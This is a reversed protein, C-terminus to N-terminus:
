EALGSRKVATTESRMKALAKALIQVNSPPTGRDLAKCWRDYAARVLALGEETLDSARISFDDSDVSERSSAVTRVLLGNARLFEHFVWFMEIVDDRSEHPALRKIVWGVKCITFDSNM